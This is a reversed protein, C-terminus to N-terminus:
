NPCHYLILCVGIPPNHKKLIPFIFPFKEEQPKRLQLPKTEEEENETDERESEIYSQFHKVPEGHPIINSVDVLMMLKAEDNTSEDVDDNVDDQVVVKGKSSYDGGHIPDMYSLFM